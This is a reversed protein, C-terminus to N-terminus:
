NKWNVALHASSLIGLTVPPERPGCLYWNLCAWMWQPESSKEPDSCVTLPADYTGIIIAEGGDSMYSVTCAYRCVAPLVIFVKKRLYGISAWKTCQFSSYPVYSSATFCGSPRATSPNKKWTLAFIPIKWINGMAGTQLNKHVYTVQNAFRCYELIRITRIKSQNLLSSLIQHGKKCKVASGFRGEQNYHAGFWKAM